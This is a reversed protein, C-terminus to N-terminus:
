PRKFNAHSLIRWGGDTMKFVTLRQAPSRNTRKGGVIESLGAQYTVMLLPGQRTVEFKSLNPASQIDRSLIRKIADDRTVAGSEDIAQFGDALMARISAEDQVMAAGFFEGVLRRALAVDDSSKAVAPAAIAVALLLPLILRQM